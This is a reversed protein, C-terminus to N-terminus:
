EDVSKRYAEYLIMFYGLTGEGKVLYSAHKLLERKPAPEISDVDVRELNIPSPHDHSFSEDECLFEVTLSADSYDVYLGERVRELLENYDDKGTNVIGISEGDDGIVRVIDGTAFPNPWPIFQNEFRATDFEDVAKMEEPTMENTWLSKRKGNKYWVSGIDSGDYKEKYVTFEDIEDGIMNPNVHAVSKIVPINGDILIYKEIWIDKKPWRDLAYAEAEHFRRFIGVNLYKDEDKIRVMFVYKGDNETLREYSLREYRIRARIQKALKEDQTEDALKELTAMRDEHDLEHYIVTAAQWDTMEFGVRELHERMVRSPILDIHRKADKSVTINEEECM